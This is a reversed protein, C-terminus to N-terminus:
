SYLLFSRIGSVGNACLFRITREDLKPGKTSITLFDSLDEPIEISKTEDESESDFLETLQTFMAQVAEETTEEFSEM